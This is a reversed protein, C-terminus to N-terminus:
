EADKLAQARAYLGKRPQGTAAAVETAADKVSGRTLADALMIDVDADSTEKPAPPALVLVIEGKPDLEDALAAALESAPARRIEEFRKTLERCMAVERGPEQEAIAALTRATRKPSEYLILTAEVAMVDALFRARAGEKVPPFGAFLFRDVPMGAVALAALLASAGPASRVDVGEAIAARALMFGPDALLPTGADSAYAVSKGEGIAAVLGKASAGENHDHCAVIRRGNLPIGHIDMLKRLRRTDEAALVDAQALVKLARLTIDDASGIPTSVIYLAPALPNEHSAHM